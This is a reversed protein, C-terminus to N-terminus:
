DLSTWVLGASHEMWVLACSVSCSQLRQRTISVRASLAKWEEGLSPHVHSKFTSKHFCFHLTGRTWRRAIYDERFNWANFSVSDPRVSGEAQAAFHTFHTKNRRTIDTNSLTNIWTGGLAPPEPIIWTFGSCLQSPPIPLPLRAPPPHM